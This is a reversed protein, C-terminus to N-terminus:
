ITRLQLLIIAIAATFKTLLYPGSESPQTGSFGPISQGMSLGSISSLSINTISYTAVLSEWTFKGKSM